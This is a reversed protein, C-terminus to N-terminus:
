DSKEESNIRLKRNIEQREQQLIRYQDRITPPMKSVDYGFKDELKWLREQINDARDSQIKQELRIALQEVDGAKAWRSDLKFLTGTLISLSILVGSIVSIRKLNM